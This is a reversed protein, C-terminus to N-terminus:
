SGVADEIEKRLEKTVKATASLGIPDPLRSLARKLLEKLRAIELEKALFDAMAEASKTVLTKLREIELQQERLRDVVQSGSTTEYAAPLMPRRPRAADRRKQAEEEATDDGRGYGLGGM